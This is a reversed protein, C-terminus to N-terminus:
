RLGENAVEHSVVSVRWKTNCLRKTRWKGSPQEVRGKQWLSWAAASQLQTGSVNGDTQVFHDDRPLVRQALARGTSLELSEEM